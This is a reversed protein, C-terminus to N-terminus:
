TRDTFLDSTKVKTRRPKVFFNPTYPKAIEALATAHTIRDIEAGVSPRGEIRAARLTTGGGATIDMVLDGPKSYDTVLRRMVPLPKSGLVIGDRDPASEYWGPLSGWKLWKKGVPRAVVLWVCGNGPGDGQQRPKHQLIPIPPFDVLGAAAFAARYVPGLIDDTISAVWGDCRSVVFRAADNADDPTWFSYGIEDRNEPQGEHTKQSYPADFIAANARADALVERFDGLRLDITPASDMGGSALWEAETACSSVERGKPTSPESTIEISM